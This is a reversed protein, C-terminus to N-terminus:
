DQVGVQDWFTELKSTNQQILGGGVGPGVGVRPHLGPRVGSCPGSCPCSGLGLIAECCACSFLALDFTPDFALVPVLELDLDLDLDLDFVLVLVLMLFEDFTACVSTQELLRLRGSCVRTHSLPGSSLLARREQIPKQAALVDLIAGPALDIINSIALAHEHPLFLDSASLGPGNSGCSRRSDTAL